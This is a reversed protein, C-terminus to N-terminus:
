MGPIHVMTLLFYQTHKRTASQLIISFFIPFDLPVKKFPLKKVPILAPHTQNEFFTIFKINPNCM